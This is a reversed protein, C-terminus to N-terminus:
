ATVELLEANEFINGIVECDALNMVDLILWSKREIFFMTRLIKFSSGEFKIPSIEGLLSVIDGEYIEVGKCDTLGTFQLPVLDNLEAILVHGGEPRADIMGLLTCEGYLNFPQKHLWEKRASDWVKFKIKRNM